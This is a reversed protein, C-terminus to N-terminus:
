APNEIPNPTTAWLQLHQEEQKRVQLLSGFTRFSRSVLLQIYQGTSSLDTGEHDLVCVPFSKSSMRRPLPGSNCDQVM